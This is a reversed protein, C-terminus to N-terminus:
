NPSEPGCLLEVLRETGREIEAACRRYAASGFSM